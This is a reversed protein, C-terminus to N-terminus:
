PQPPKQARSEQGRYTAATADRSLQGVPGPLLSLVSGILNAAVVLSCM